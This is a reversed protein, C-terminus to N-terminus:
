VAREKETSLAPEESPLLAAMRAARWRARKAREDWERLADELVSTTVMGGTALRERDAEWLRADEREDHVDVWRFGDPHLYLAAAAVALLREEQVLRRIVGYARRRDGRSWYSELEDWEGPSLAAILEDAM